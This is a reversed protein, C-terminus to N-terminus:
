WYRDMFDELRDYIWKLPDTFFDVLDDWVGSTFFGTIKEGLVDYWYFVTAVFPITSIAWPLIQDTFKAKLYGLPDALFLGLEGGASDIATRIYGAPDTFFAEIEDRFDIYWHYISSIFPLNDIAWPLIEDAWKTKLYDTPGAFFFELEDKFNVYWNYVTSIFPIREVAWPLINEEFLTRFYGAPDEMILQLQYIIVQIVDVIEQRLDELWAGISEIWELIDNIWGILWDLGDEVADGVYIQLTFIDWNLSALLDTLWAPKEVRVM